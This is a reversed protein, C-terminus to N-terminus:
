FQRKRGEFYNGLKILYKVPINVVAAITYFFVAIYDRITKPFKSEKFFTPIKFKKVQSDVWNLTMPIRLAVRCTGPVPAEIEVDGTPSALAMALDKHLKSINELPTGM